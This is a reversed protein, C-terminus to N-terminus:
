EGGRKISEAHLHSWLEQESIGPVLHDHMVEMAKETAAVACRMATIEEPHKIMRALEMIEEGNHVSVGLERLHEVGEPNLRDAALRTNGGGHEKLLLAIEDAWRKAKADYTPGAAFYYWDTVPRVEDILDFPDSLYNARSFEFLVVPGDTAIFCFRSANHMIWVQMNTSSTAYRVNLPDFLVVGGYDFESLKEVVRDFRYRRVVDMDPLDLGM